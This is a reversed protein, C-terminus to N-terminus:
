QNFRTAGPGFYLGALDLYDALSTVLFLEAYARPSRRHKGAERGKLYISNAIDRGYCQHAYDFVENQSKWLENLERKAEVVGTIDVVVNPSTISAIQYQWAEIADTEGLGHAAAAVIACIKRHDAPPDLIFPVFITDPRENELIRRVKFIYAEDIGPQKCPMGLFIPETGNLRRWAELAEARRREVQLCGDTLYVCRISKGARHAKLLVGGAGVIEDDQHPAFILIRSGKPADMVSPPLTRRFVQAEFLRLMADFDPVASLIIKFVGTRAAFRRAPYPDSAAGNRPRLRNSIKKLLKRM